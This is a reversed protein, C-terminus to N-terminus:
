VLFSYLDNLESIIPVDDSMDGSKHPDYFVCNMGAAQAAQVGVKSDEIVLCDSPSAYSSAAAHLFLKPDPKWAEVQDASFLGSPFHHSLGCLELSRRTKKVPANSAICKDVSLQSLMADAGTSPTIMTSSLLEERARYLDLWQDPVSSPFRSEIDNIIKSLRMGRYRNTVEHVSDSLTPIIDKLAQSACDESQVLTGDMDFIILQYKM